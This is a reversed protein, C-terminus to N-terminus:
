GGHDASAHGRADQRVRPGEARGLRLARPEAGQVQGRVPAPEQGPIAPAAHAGASEVPNNVCAGLAALDRSRRTREPVRTSLVAKALVDHKMGFERCDCKVDFDFAAGPRAPATPRDVVNKITAVAEGAHRGESHRRLYEGELRNRWDLYCTLFGECEGGLGNTVALWAIDDAVPAKASRAHLDWIAKDSLIWRGGPEDYTAVAAQGALWAAYPERRGQNFPIAALAASVARLRYWDIQARGDPNTYGEVRSRHLERARGRGPIRRGEARSSRRRDPRVDDVALESRDSADPQLAVLRRPRRRGEGPDM